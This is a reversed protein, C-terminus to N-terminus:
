EEKMTLDIMVGGSSVSFDMNRGGQFLSDVLHAHEESVRLDFIVGDEIGLVSIPVRRAGLLFWRKKRQLNAMTVYVLAQSVTTAFFRPDIHVVISFGTLGVLALAVFLNFWRGMHQPRNKYRILSDVTGICSVMATALTYWDLIKPYEDISYGIKLLIIISQIVFNLTTCIFNLDFVTSSTRQIVCSALRESPLAFHLRVSSPRLPLRRRTTTSVVM